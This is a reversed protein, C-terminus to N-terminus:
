PTSVSVSKAARVLICDFEIARLGDLDRTVPFFGALEYGLRTLFTIHETFSPSGEYIPKAAVETQIGAIRDLIPLAGEVVRLDFGQTDMKLFIRESPLGITIEDLVEALRRIRVTERAFECSASPFRGSGYANFPLSSSLNGSRALHLTLLDNTDGLAYQYGYWNPDNKLVGLMQNFSETAPEFSIVPGAFAVEKRLRRVFQGNYGGVDLACDVSLLTFVDKLLRSLSDPPPYRSLSIGGSAAARKIVDKVFKAWSGLLEGAGGPAGLLGMTEVMGAMSPTNVTRNSLYKARRVGSPGLKASNHAAPRNKRADLLSNCPDLEIVLDDDIVLDTARHMQQIRIGRGYPFAKVSPSRKVLDRSIQTIGVPGVLSLHRLM